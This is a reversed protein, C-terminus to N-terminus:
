LENSILGGWTKMVKDISYRSSIAKANEGLKQKLIASKLIQEIAHTMAKPNETPILLGNENHTIIDKPGSPCNTSICATGLSMAELLANPFGEFISSLVFCESKKIYFSPNSVVGLFKVQSAISLNITLAELQPRLYGEGLIYLYLKENLPFQIKSFAKILTDFDKQPTLSGMAVIFKHSIPTSIIVSKHQKIPNPIIFVKQNFADFYNKIDRTQVILAKALPYFCKRLIKWAARKESYFLPHNRESIYLPIGLKYSAIITLINTAFLFSIIHDPTFRKIMKRLARIRIINAFVGHFVTKSTSTKNLCAVVINKSLPYFSHQTSALTLIHVHHGRDAWYNAMLSVVRESGGPGLSSIVFM